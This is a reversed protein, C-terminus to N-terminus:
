ATVFADDALYWLIILALVSKSAIESVMTINCTSVLPVLLGGRFICRKDHLPLVIRYSISELRTPGGHQDESIFM